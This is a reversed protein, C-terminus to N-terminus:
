HQKQKNKQAPAVSCKEKPAKARIPKKHPPIKDIPPTLLTNFGLCGKHPLFKAEIECFYKKDAKREEETKKPDFRFPNVPADRWLLPLHSAKCKDWDGRKQNRYITIVPRKYQPIFQWIGKILFINPRDGEKLEKQYAVVQFGLQVNQRDGPTFFTRPYVRLFVSDQELLRPLLRKSGLLPYTSDGIRIKYKEDELFVKGKIIGIAQFYPNAETNESSM